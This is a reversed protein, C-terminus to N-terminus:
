STVLVLVGLAIFVTAMALKFASLNRRLFNGIRDSKVGSYALYLILVLPLIFMVNYLLLMGVAQANAGATQIVFTITPLYLQGTCLSELMAVLVGVTFAGVVVSRTSLGERIVRHIRSKVAKPLGLTMKAVDKTRLYRVADVLSWAGLVLALIGVGWSIGRAVGKSVAFTKVVGFLGLGLLLYTLFVATTFGIGVLALERKTKGLYALMSLLFVITTFACPNVGDVLGATAVAAMSFTKFRDILVAAAGGTAVVAGQPPQYTVSGKALEQAIVDQLKEGIAPYGELCQTGVYVKPPAQATTKYHDEYTFMRCFEAADDATDHREVHIQAGWRRESEAMAKKAKECQECKSSYFIVVRLADSSEAAASSPMSAAAAAPASAPQTAEPPGVLIDVAPQEPCDTQVKIRAIKDIPGAITVPLRATSGPGVSESPLKVSTQPWSSIAYILRVPKESRNNFVVEQVNEPMEKARLITPEIRLPLGIDAKLRLSITPREPSNTQLVVSKSYVMKENPAEFRIPVKAQGQPPITAISAPGVMCECESRVRVIELPQRSPNAVVYEVNRVSALGVCGIDISAAAGTIGSPQSQAQPLADTRSHSESRHSLGIGVVALVALAVIIITYTKISRKM